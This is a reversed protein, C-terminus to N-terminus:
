KNLIITSEQDDLLRLLKVYKTKKELFNVIEFYDAKTTIRINEM